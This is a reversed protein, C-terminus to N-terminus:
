WSEGENWEGGGMQHLWTMSQKRGRGGAPGGFGSSTFQQPQRRNAPLASRGIGAGVVSAVAARWAGAVTGRPQGLLAAARGGRARFYSGAIDDPNHLKQFAYDVSQMLM